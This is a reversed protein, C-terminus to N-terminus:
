KYNHIYWDMMYFCMYFGNTWLNGLPMNFWTSALMRNDLQDGSFWPLGSDVSPCKEHPCSSRCVAPAPLLSFIIDILKCTHNLQFVSKHGAPFWCRMRFLGQECPNSTEHLRGMLDRTPGKNPLTDSAAPPRYLRRPSVLGSSLHSHPRSSAWVM